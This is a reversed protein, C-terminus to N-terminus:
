RSDYGCAKFPNRHATLILLCSTGCEKRVNTNQMHVAPDKGVDEVSKNLYDLRGILFLQRTMNTNHPKSCQPTNAKVVREILSFHDRAPTTVVIRPGSPM